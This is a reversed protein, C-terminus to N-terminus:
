RRSMFDYLQLSSPARRTDAALYRAGILWFLGSFLCMIAVLRFATDMTYRDSILGIVFPSLVDGLAHIVLINLAYGAARMAPHTVNALITNTPATNFFLCLCSVLIYVWIWPFVANTTAWMMPFGIMITAGSVLFYSGGFRDRLKDGATGGLLTGLLGTLLLVGGFITTPFRHVKPRHELYYPMWVAIGGMAFTMCTMGLSCLVYSPTRLLILYDRWRVVRASVSVTADAQGKPPDRMFMSWLGLILGPPTVLYFAWRWSEASFGFLRASLDGIGSKSIQEGLVYGLASGIPLATYFWSLARGRTSIPYFDSIIAPAIPSYAAEGIGVFCRTALLILFTAALGSAGSAVSWLSVGVGILIWRSRREALRGFLPATIMYTVMFATSLLGALALRPTFGFESEFMAVLHSVATGAREPSSFFAKEIEPMVAALVYRDIYNFLNILILLAVALRAAPLSGSNRLPKQTQADPRQVLDGSQNSSDM